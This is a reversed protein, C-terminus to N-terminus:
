TRLEKKIMSEFFTTPTRGGYMALSLVRKQAPTLVIEIGDISVKSASALLKLAQTASEIPWKQILNELQGRESDSFWLGRLANHNKCKALRSQMLDEVSMESRLATKAYEEYVSQPINLAVTEYTETIVPIDVMTMVPFEDKFSEPPDATYIEEIQAQIFNQPVEPEIAKAGFVKPRRGM